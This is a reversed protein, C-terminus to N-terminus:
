LCLTTPSREVRGGWGPEGGGGGGGAVDASEGEMCEGEITAGGSERNSLAGTEVETFCKCKMPQFM